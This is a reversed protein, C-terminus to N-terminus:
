AESKGQRILMQADEESLQELEALLQELEADHGPQDIKATPLTALEEPAAALYHALTQISPYDWLVTPSLSRGLWTELDGMLEVADVSDLGYYSFPQQVDMEAAAIRLKQSLRAILWDEIVSVTPVEDQSSWLSQGNTTEPATLSSPKAEIDAYHQGIVALESNLFLDRCARRQIKGSSTKPISATKVLVVAYIQLEHQESVAQRIARVVADVDLRRLYSREVEQVIVLSEASQVEISFAVGADARLAPHSQAVTSEIDQPYHNCGRIIILDKLRGTVFLEGDKLFGLDGTRLFPGEGTDKLRAQFSQETRLPQNWYGQAVSPGAVWVEGVENPSCRSLNEPHAIEVQLDLLPRGCSVLTQADSDTAAAPFVLHQQLAEIQVSEFIPADEKGVGSVILTTEAMGYCPFFAERRFGCAAFATAFRDLTQPRIPEAGNFAVTWHSLDLMARQEDTIKRVCLEYAFNPGGSTTAKYQSVAQLWRFPKQLFHFPSMLVVPFAGYLPQLVGGILGMDHYPPLWIVGQSAPTHGFSNHILELNHLLNGHSVMVGKPTGTSGSTYQLFALTEERVEPRYWEQSLDAALQNTLIWNLQQLEPSQAIQREVNSKVETTTLAIVAQSDAIVAQLRALSQNARPPYAPVAIVGAYLCGLFAAIYELGPQYLLLAREGSAKSNQLQAAIARAKQDLERYTLCGEQSEGNELFRYAIQESQHIARCELLDVLTSFSHKEM